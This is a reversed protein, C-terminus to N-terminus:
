KLGGIIKSKLEEIGSKWLEDNELEAKILAEKIFENIEDSEINKLTNVIIVAGPWNLDKLWEFLDPIIPKIKPYGIINIVKAANEWCYKSKPQILKCLDKELINELNKIAKEQIEIPKNWDLDDILKKLNDM